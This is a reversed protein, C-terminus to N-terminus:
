ARKVNLYAGISEKLCTSITIALAAGVTVVPLASFTSYSDEM